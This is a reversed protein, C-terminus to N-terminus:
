RLWDRLLAHITEPRSIHVMHGGEVAEFRNRPHNSAILDYVRRGYAIPVLRDHKGHIVLVPVRILHAQARLQKTPDGENVRITSRHIEPTATAMGLEHQWFGSPAVDPFFSTFTAARALTQAMVSFPFRASRMAIGHLVAAAGPIMTLWAAPHAPVGLTCLLVLSRVHRPSRVALTQAIAGGHSHGIVDVDSTWGLRDAFAAAVDAFFDLSLPGSRTPSGGFGPTDFQAVEGLERLFALNPAFHDIHAPNGHILLIKRKADARTPAFRRAWLQVPVGDVQVEVHSASEHLWDSSM